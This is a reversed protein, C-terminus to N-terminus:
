FCLLCCTAQIYLNPLDVCQSRLMVQLRLERLNKEDSSSRESNFFIFWSNINLLSSALPYQLKSISTKVRKKFKNGVGSLLKCRISSNLLYLHQFESSFEFIRQVENCLFWNWLIPHRCFFIYEFNESFCM